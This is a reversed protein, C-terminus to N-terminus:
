LILQLTDMVIESVAYVNKRNKSLSGNQGCYEPTKTIKKYDAMVTM